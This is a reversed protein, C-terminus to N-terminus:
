FEMALQLTLLDRDGAVGSDDVRGKEHLYELALATNDMVECGIAAGYQNRIDFGTAGALRVTVLWPESLAYGAELNWALPQRGARAGDDFKEAATIYEARLEADGFAVAGYLGFGAVLGSAADFAGTGANYYDGSLGDTAAINNTLSAGARYRLEKDDEDSVAFSLVFTNITEDDGKQVDARYASLTAAFAGEEYGLRLAGHHKTEALELTLPDAVMGTTFDGFAQTMRGVSITLPSDGPSLRIFAEDVLFEDDGDEEYLLTAHGSVEDNVRTEIGLEFASLIVGSSRNGGENDVISGETELLASVTTNKVPSCAGQEEAAYLGVSCLMSLSVISLTRSTLSSM